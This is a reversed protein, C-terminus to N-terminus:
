QRPNSNLPDSPNWSRPRDMRQGSQQAEFLILEIEREKDQVTQTLAQIEDTAERYADELVHVRHQREVVYKSLYFAGTFLILTLVACILVILITM